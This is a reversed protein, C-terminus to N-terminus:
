HKFALGCILDNNYFYSRYMLSIPSINVVKKFIFYTNGYSGMQRNLIGLEILKELKDRYKIYTEVDLESLYFKPLIKVFRKSFKKFRTKLMLHSVMRNPAYEFISDNCLFDILLCLRAINKDRKIKWEKAIREQNLKNMHNFKIPISNQKEIKMNYLDCTQKLLELQIIDFSSPEVYNSIRKYHMRIRFNERTEDLSITYKNLLYNKYAMAFTLKYNKDLLKPQKSYTYTHKCTYPDKYKIFFLYLRKWNNEQTFNESLLRNTSCFNYFDMLSLNDIILPLLDTPLELVNM